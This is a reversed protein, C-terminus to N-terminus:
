EGKYNFAIQLSDVFTAFTSAGPLSIVFEFNKRLKYFQKKEIKLIFTIFLIIIVASL